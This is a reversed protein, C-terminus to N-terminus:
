RKEATGFKKNNYLLYKSVNYFDQAYQRMHAAREPDSELLDKLVPDDLKYMHEGHERIFCYGDEVLRITSESDGGLFQMEDRKTDPDLLNRGLAQYRFPIGALAALTPFIDPQGCPREDVGPKIKGEAVLGPAYLLMPTHNSQLRCGLYGPTMNQSTDNLGHDGFIAFVTHRFWPQERAIRFFEGLAHDSLRLSNYEDAGTFGYNRLIAESPAKVEFGASDAPITYPRHFGSTQIVAVFPKESKTLAAASERFLDLDSLGWVDTNPAKWSGEELLHLGAINHSLFGRINAWSASGGIMYYKEYGKFENMLLTQDVLAQNRSSTGGSRNVDPIGTMTTFVARATTRTPAFFLPYLISDRSLAVLNPTTDEPIGTTNPSFSTRPWTMSEMIIVVVNLPEAQEAAPTGPVTRLFNLKKADPNQIRLWAAIRPYSARTAELDPRTGKSANVTDFLNQIPNLALIPMNKDVSFFANSWRLPFLNSSIQGYGLLFLAAFTAATWGTRRKWGLKPTVSHAKLTRAFFLAYLVAALILGVTIRIVPYSEWVMTGAIDPDGMLEFLTADVRTHLYFFWGFDIVYVLAAGAFLAGYFLEFGVRIGGHAVIRREIPPIGLALAIPILGLVVMRIDFKIGVYLAKAIDSSSSAALEPWLLFLMAVRALVLVLLTGAFLIGLTRIFPPLSTNKM